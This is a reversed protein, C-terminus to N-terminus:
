SKSAANFGTKHRSHSDQINQNLQILFHIKREIRMQPSYSRMLHLLWYIEKVSFHGDTGKIRFEAHQYQKM